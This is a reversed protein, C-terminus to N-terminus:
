NLTLLFEANSKTKKLKEIIMEMVEVPNLGSLVKRLTWVKTLEDPHLLLEEKRTGSKEIDIAPFCRKDVLRRDLHLEMNGTGKFEEFIVDDMRSGTDVLATAASGKVLYANYSTGDPLPILSDFLRREWHVSAIAHVGPKIERATM